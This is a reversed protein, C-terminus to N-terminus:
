RAAAGSTSGALWGFCGPAWTALWGGPQIKGAREADEIMNRGIRDQTCALPDLLGHLTFTISRRGAQVRGCVCCRRRRSHM